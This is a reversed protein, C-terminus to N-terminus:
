AWMGEKECWAVAFEVIEQHDFALSPLQALDFWEACAADDGGKPACLDRVVRGVFAVSISRGRPDRGPAGFTRCQQLAVHQLGTEEYLERAAADPLDEDMDVFGGPLAWSGAFPANKREILLVQRRGVHETFIVADVTVMPRPYAYCYQKERM